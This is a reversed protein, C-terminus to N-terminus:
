GNVPALRLSTHLAARSKHWRSLKHLQSSIKEAVEEPNRGESRKAPIVIDYLLKHPKFRQITACVMYIGTM